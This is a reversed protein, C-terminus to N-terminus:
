RERGGDIDDNRSAEEEEELSIARRRLEQIGVQVCENVRQDHIAKLSTSHRPSHISKRKGLRHNLQHQTTQSTGRRNDRHDKPQDHGVVEYEHAKV